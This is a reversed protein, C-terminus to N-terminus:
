SSKVMLMLVLKRLLVFVTKKTTGVCRHKSSLKKRYKKITMKISSSVSTDKIAIEEKLINAFERDIKPLSLRM